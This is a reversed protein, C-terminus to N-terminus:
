KTHSICFSAVKPLRLLTFTGPTRMLRGERVIWQVSGEWDEILAHYDGGQLSIVASLLTRNLPGTEREVIETKVGKAVAQKLIKELVLAVVRCCEAPGRGSTIQM